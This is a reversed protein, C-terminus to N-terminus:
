ATLSQVEEPTLYRWAGEKLRGLTIKAIRIRHLSEVKNGTQVVMKRIQRNMGQKLIIHFVFKSRKKVVAKRTKKGNILMGAAMQKLGKDSLPHVTKVIYEKEHNYSPHSLRNHLHGDDTLLILGTSDKDLRGVPYVRDKLDILDLVVPENHHSCSSIIGAPKNLAIYIKEKQRYVVPRNQFFVKDKDPDVQMAPHDATKGNIKVQGSLIHEEAKRRSCIGCHALFKQLRM